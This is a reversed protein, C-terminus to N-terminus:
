KAAWVSGAKVSMVANMASADAEVEPLELAAAMFGDHDDHEGALALLQEFLEPNTDALTPKGGSKKATAPKGAFKTGKLDGSGLYDTAIIKQYKKTVNTTPNTSEIETTALHWKTGVWGAAEWPSVDALVERVKEAGGVAVICSEVFRGWNSQGSLGKRGTIGAGKGTIEWGDGVTFSQEVPEGEDLAFTINACILGAGIKANFGFEFALIEVDADALPLGSTIKWPDLEETTM